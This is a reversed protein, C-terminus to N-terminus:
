KRSHLKSPEMKNSSDGDQWLNTGYPIGISVAWKHQNNNINSFLYDLDAELGM